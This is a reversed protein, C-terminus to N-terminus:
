ILVMNTPKILYLGNGSDSTITLSLQYNDPLYEIFEPNIEATEVFLQTTDSLQKLCNEVDDNRNLVVIISPYEQWFEKAKERTGFPVVLLDVMAQAALNDLILQNESPLYHLIQM